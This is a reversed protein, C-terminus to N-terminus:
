SHVHPSQAPNRHVPKPGGKVVQVDFAIPLRTPPYCARDDCAQYKLYGHVRYRGPTIDKNASLMASVSVDGTYVNLKEDPAFPFSQDKGPPYNIKGMSIDTPMDLHLATPILLESNPKNSNVHYGPVVRFMFEVNATGGRTIKVPSVPAFTVKPKPKALQASAAATLIALAAILKANSTKM